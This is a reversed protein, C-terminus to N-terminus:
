IDNQKAIVFMMSELPDSIGYISRLEARLVALKSSYVEMAVDRKKAIDLADQQASFADNRSAKGDRYEKLVQFRYKQAMDFEMRLSTYTSNAEILSDWRSDGQAFSAIEDNTINWDTRWTFEKYGREEALNLFGEETDFNITDYEAKGLLYIAEFHPGEFYFKLENELGACVSIRDDFRKYEGATDCRGANDYLDSECSTVFLVPFILLLLLHKVYRLNSCIRWANVLAPKM